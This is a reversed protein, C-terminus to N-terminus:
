QLTETHFITDFGANVTLTGKVEVYLAEATERIIRGQYDELLLFHKLVEAKVGASPVVSGDNKIRDAFGTMKLTATFPITANNVWKILSQAKVRTYPPVTITQKIQHTKNETVVKALNEQTNKQWGWEFVNTAKAQASILGLFSASAKATVTLKNSFRLAKNEQFSWSYTNTTQRTESITQQLTVNGDNRFVMANILDIDLKNRNINELPNIYHFEEISSFIKYNSPWFKWLADKRWAGNLSFNPLSQSALQMYHGSASKQDTYTLYANSLPSFKVGITYYNKNETSNLQWLACDHWVKGVRYKEVEKLAIQMYHGSASQQDTYTMYGTPLSKVGISYYHAEETPWFAWLACDRWVGDVQYKELDKIAIQMYHGSKSAQGTYTVYGESPGGQVGMTYFLGTFLEISNGQSSKLKHNPVLSPDDHRMM